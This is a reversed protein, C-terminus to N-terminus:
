IPIGMKKVILEIFEKKTVKKPGVKFRDEIYKILGDIFNETKTENSSFKQPPFLNKLKDLSM